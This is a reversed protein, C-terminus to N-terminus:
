KTGRHTKAYEAWFHKRKGHLGKSRKNRNPDPPTFQPVAAVTKTMCKSDMSDKRQAEDTHM